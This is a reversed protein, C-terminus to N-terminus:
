ETDGEEIIKRIVEVAVKIREHIERNVAAKSLIEKDLFELAEEPTM